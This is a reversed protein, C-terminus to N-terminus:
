DERVSCLTEAAVCDLLVPLYYLVNRARIAPNAGNWSILGSRM